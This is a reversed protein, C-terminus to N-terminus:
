TGAESLRVEVPTSLFAAYREAEEYLAQRENTTIPALLTIEATVRRATQTRRWPGVVQGDIVVVFGASDFASIGQLGALREMMASRDGYGIVSEDFLSLLAVNPQAVTHAGAPPAAHARWYPQGGIREKVVDPQAAALAAAAETKTLSAWWALDEVQIPGHSRTYCLALRALAEDRPLRSTAPAREDLLAYTHQKGRLPGSCILGELEAQMLLYSFRLSAGSETLGAQAYAARLEARTLSQGGQLQNVLLTHSHAFTPADLAQQRYYHANLAHVRPATATLLWRIDAPTVFHWTPRLVHTRLISGDALAADFHPEHAAPMRHALSWKTPHYEQAQVAGFWAVAEAPTDFGPTTLGQNILRQQQIDM